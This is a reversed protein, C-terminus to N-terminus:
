FTQRTTSAFGQGDGIRGATAMIADKRVRDQADHAEYRSQRVTKGAQDVPYRRLSRRNEKRVSAPGATERGTGKVGEIHGKRTAIAKADAEAQPVRNRGANGGPM